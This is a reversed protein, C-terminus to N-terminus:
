IDGGEIYKNIICKEYHIGAARSEPKENYINVLDQEIGHINAEIDPTRYISSVLTTNGNNDTLTGHVIYAKGTLDTDIVIYMLLIFAALIAAGFIIRKTDESLIKLKNRIM